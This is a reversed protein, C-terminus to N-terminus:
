SIEADHLFVPSVGWAIHDLKYGVGYRDIFCSLTKTSPVMDEPYITYAPDHNILAELAKDKNAPNSMDLPAGMKARKERSVETIVVNDDGYAATGTENTVFITPFGDHMDLVAELTNSKAIISAENETKHHGLVLDIQWDEEGLIMISQWLPKNILKNTKNM